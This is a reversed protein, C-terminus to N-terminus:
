YRREVDVVVHARQPRRLAELAERRERSGSGGDSGIWRRHWRVSRIQRMAESSAPKSDRFLRRRSAAGSSRGAAAATTPGGACAATPRSSTSRRGSRDSTESRPQVAPSSSGRGLPPSVVSTASPSAGPLSGRPLVPSRSGLFAHSDRDYSARRRTCVSGAAAPLTPRTVSRAAFPEALGHTTRTRTQMAWNMTM